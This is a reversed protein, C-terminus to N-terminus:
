QSQDQRLLCQAGEKEKHVSRAEILKRNAKTKAIGEQKAFERVSVGAAVAEYARATIGAERKERIGLFKELNRTATDGINAARGAAARTSGGLVMRGYVQLSEISIEGAYDKGNLQKSRLILRLDSLQTDKSVLKGRLICMVATGGIGSEDLLKYISKALRDISEDPFLVALYRLHTRLSHRSNMAKDMIDLDFKDFMSKEKVLELLDLAASADALEPEPTVPYQLAGAAESRGASLLEPADASGPAGPAGTNLTGTEPVTDLLNGTKQNTFDTVTATGNTTSGTEITNPTGIM